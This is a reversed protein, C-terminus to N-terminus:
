RGAADTAQGCTCRPRRVRVSVLDADEGIPLDADFTMPEDADRRWSQAFEQTKLEGSADRTTVALVYSGNSPACAAREIAGEVRATTNRQTYEIAVAAECQLPEPSPVDIATSFEKETRIVTQTPQPECSRVRSASPPCIPTIQAPDRPAEDQAAATPALGALLLMVLVTASDTRTLM